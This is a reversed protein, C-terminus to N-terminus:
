PQQQQPQQQQQQQQQMGLLVSEPIGTMLYEIAREPNNFAARLARIAEDRPFGMECIMKVTEDFQSGIVLGQGQENENTSVTTTDPQEDKKVEDKKEEPKIIEEQKKVVEPEKEKITTPKKPKTAM